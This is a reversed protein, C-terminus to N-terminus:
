KLLKWLTTEDHRQKNINGCATNIFLILLLTISITLKKM